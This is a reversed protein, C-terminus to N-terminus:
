LDNEALIELGCIVTEVDEQAPTLTILIDQDAQIDAFTKVLGINPSGTAAVIDFNQLVTKNGIAVDFVRQGIKLSDPELFHLRVTYIQPEAVSDTLDQEEEEEEEEKRGAVRIRISRLGKAGSAEVWKLEGRRVRLSHRRFWTPDAPRLDIDIEPSSGGVPPYDLWLTGNDAIRDGPAGFNVGVKQIPADSPAIDSFTWTEVDPMHIMALSTQNQYSCTCTRTYDPANLVGDAVVLNSTCGSRFGGFNGTGSDTALDFYGAAASRFTLLNCSGIATGCGYNRAYRWPVPEDTLPHRRTTPRGTLLSYASEQTIITGGRLICPGSHAIPKDWIVAGTEAHFAAMRNGPEWVMDRSKRHAELLVGFPESLSLWSGFARANDSWAVQGSRIDLALLRGVTAKEYVKERLYPPPVDLCFVKGQGAVIGNHVFGHEAEITWRVSGTYRDMVVLKRSASIDFFPAWKAGDKDNPDIAPSYRGFGMGAILYDKYVGIYGWDEAALGDSGPLLFIRQTLGTEADLVHCEAGQVVYIRDATAVFNTGRTNAGPIHQQNYSLNRFDHKYSADYYVGFNGLGKLTRRWLTRGTYVDRASLSNVGEIFLRGAVVQEPPGHAHRPLVDGFASEEGFWLLGLPAKLQDQSCVTNAVDGYQHTWDASGPVQGARRIILAEDLAEIRCGPLDATALKKYLNLQQRKDAALWAVGSYPRLLDYIEALSVAQNQLRATKLDEVVILSIWYPPLSLSRSDGQLVHIRSGYLGARDFETRMSAVRDADPEVVVIHMESQRLVERLLGGTVDGLWLAYGQPEPIQQLLRAARERDEPFTVPPSEPQEVHHKPYCKQPGFCYLRGGETVVFLRNDGALMTWVKGQIRNSWVIRVEGRSAPPALAAITGDGNSGYLCQGAQLHIRDLTLASQAQWLPRAMAEIKVKKTKPDKREIQALTYAILDGHERIGVVGDANMVHGSIAGMGYGDALRYVIDSNFYWDKWISASCGGVYKGYSRDSLPYYLLEGTETDFCAPTTRGTVLLKGNGAALYGQPAAGGFAPSSHQQKIYIAGTGSNEWLIQGTQADIAYVFVGMFPWIGATCYLTGDLLVPGGRAPWASILRGNGLLRRKTPALSAKWVLNGLEADLCYLNGDDSVFYVRGQWAIPAFRVPGDCFFQWNQQGTETDYATVKDRVMSAVFIQQDMVVPEYSRDFQLKYQEESWAPAPRPLERVWQLHLDDALAAPSAGTRAADYRWMPWDARGSTQGAHITGAILPCVLVLSAVLKLLPLPSSYPANLPASVTRIKM